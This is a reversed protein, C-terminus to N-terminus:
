FPEGPRTFARQLQAQCADDLIFGELKVGDGQYSVEMWSHIIRAPAPPMLLAPMAARQLANFFTFGHFRRPIGVARLLAM